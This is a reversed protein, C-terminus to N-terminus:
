LYYALKTIISAIVATKPAQLPSSYRKTTKSSFSEKTTIVAPSSTLTTKPMASAKM